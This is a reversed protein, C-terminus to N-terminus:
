REVGGQKVIDIAVGYADSSAISRRKMDVDSTAITIKEMQKKYNELDNVVKDIDYATPEKDIDRKDLIYVPNGYEDEGKYWNINDADILRMKVARRFFM